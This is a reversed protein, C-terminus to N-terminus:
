RPERFAANLRTQLAVDAWMPHHPAANSCVITGWAGIERSRRVAHECIEAGVPGEEFSAHLPTYGVWGEGFVLPIGRGYAFDAAVDLWADLTERMARRHEGYRDYLWRDWKGPDCWDHTYIERHPVVTAATKWSDPPRWDELKPADDRLLEAFAREQPYPRTTDRLAFEDVLQRLVGYVYPHFVAVEMNRPLTRMSAIPVHAYNVTALVDPQRQKFRAIGAELQDRDNPVGSFQVENHLEVFAVVDDLGEARVCDILDAHAEALALARQEPPVAQLARFWADDVGFSPSQQIEWSSVIIRCGHARAARFLDLLRARGDVPPSPPVDYWRTRQGFEGGLGDFRLASTDLGSRFLLFPMACIRVTDYGRDVAERFAADLDHFLAPRTYWTFDWLTITMPTTM